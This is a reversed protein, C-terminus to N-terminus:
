PKERQKTPFRMLLRRRICSCRLGRRGSRNQCQVRQRGRTEREERNRRSSKRDGRGPVAHFVRLAGARLLTVAFFERESQKGSDPHRAATGRPDHPVPGTMSALHQLPIANEEGCLLLDAICQTKPTPTTCEKESIRIDAQVCQEGSGSKRRIWPFAAKENKAM